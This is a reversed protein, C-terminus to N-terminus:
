GWVWVGCRRVGEMGRLGLAVRGYGWGVVVGGLKGGDEEQARETWGHRGGGNALKHTQCLLPSAM